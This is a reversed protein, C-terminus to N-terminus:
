DMFWFWIFAGLYPLSLLYLVTIAIIFGVRATMGASVRKVERVTLVIALVLMATAVVALGFSLAALGIVAAVVPAMLLACGCGGPSYLRQSPTGITSTNCRNARRM